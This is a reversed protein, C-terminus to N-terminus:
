FKLIHWYFDFSFINPYESVHLLMKRLSSPVLAIFFGEDKNIAAKIINEFYERFLLTYFPHRM